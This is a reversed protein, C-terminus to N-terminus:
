GAFPELEKLLNDGVGRAHGNDPRGETAPRRRKKRPGLHGGAFQAYLKLRQLDASGVSQFSREVARDLLSGLSEDDHPRSEHITM